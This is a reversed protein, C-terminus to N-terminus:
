IHQMGTDMCLAAPLWFLSVNWVSHQPQPQLSVGCHVASGHFAVAAGRGRYVHPQMGWMCMATEARCGLQVVISRIGVLAQEKEAVTGRVGLCHVLDTDDTHWHYIAQGNREICFFHICGIKGVKERVCCQPKGLLVGLAQGAVDALEPWGALIAAAHSPNSSMYTLKAQEKGDVKVHITPFAKLPGLSLDDTAPVRLQGSATRSM